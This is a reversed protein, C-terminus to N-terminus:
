TTEGPSSASSSADGGDLANNIITCDFDGCAQEFNLIGNYDRCEGFADSPLPVLAFDKKLVFTIVDDCGWEYVFDADIALSPDSNDVLRIWSREYKYPPMGYSDSVDIAERREFGGKFEYWNVIQMAGAMWALLQHDGSGSTYNADFLDDIFINNANSQYATNVGNQNVGGFQRTREILDLYGKGVILPDTAGGGMDALLTQILAIGGPNPLGSSNILPVSVPNIASNTGNAYKGVLTYATSLLAKDYKKLFVQVNQAFWKSFVEAGNECYSRFDQASISFRHIIRQDVGIDATKISPTKGTSISCLDWDSDDSDDCLYPMYRIQLRKNSTDPKLRFDQDYQFQLAGANQPSTLAKLMGLRELPMSPDNGYANQIALQALLCPRTNTANLSIAM